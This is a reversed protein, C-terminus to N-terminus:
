VPKKFICTKEVCCACDLASNTEVFFREPHRLYAVEWKFFLLLSIAFLSIAYWSKIFVMPTFMMLFDWNYIRCSVCCRNKMILSQFPCYFLICIIDSVAYFLSIILLAGEDIVGTFYLAGIGSNLTIWAASVILVDKLHKARLPRVPEESESRAIYTKGFQKQCGTSEYRSPFLRFLMELAFFAWILVLLVAGGNQFSYFNGIILDKDAVYVALTIIFLLGRIVLKSLNLKIVGSAKQKIMNFM